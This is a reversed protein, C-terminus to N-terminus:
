AGGADSVQHHQFPGNRGRQAPDCHSRRSQVVYRKHAALGRFVAWPEADIALRLLQEEQCELHSSSLEGGPIGRPLVPQQWTVKATGGPRLTVALNRPPPIVVRGQVRSRPPLPTPTPTPPRAPLEFDLGTVTEGVGATIVRASEFRDRRDLDHARLGRVM